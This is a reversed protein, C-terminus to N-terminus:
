NMVTESDSTYNQHIVRLRWYHINNIRFYFTKYLFDMDFFLLHILLACFIFNEMLYKKLLYSFM